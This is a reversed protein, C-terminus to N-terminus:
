CFKFCAPTATTIRMARLLRRGSKSGIHCGYDCYFPPRVEFIQGISGFLNQVIERRKESEDPLSLNFTYLLRQAKRSMSELEPDIALYPENALMRERETKDM